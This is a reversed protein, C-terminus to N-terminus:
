ANPFKTMTRAAQTRTKKDSRWLRGATYFFLCALPLALVLTAGHARRYGPISVAPLSLSPSHRDFRIEISGGPYIDARRPAQARATYANGDAAVYRYEILSYRTDPVFCRFSPLTVDTRATVQGFSTEWHTAQMGLRYGSVADPIAALFVLGAVAAGIAIAREADLRM